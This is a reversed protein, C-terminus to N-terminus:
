YSGLMKPDLPVDDSWPRRPIEVHVAPTRRKHEWFHEGRFPDFSKNICTGAASRQGSHILLKFRQPIHQTGPRCSIKSADVGVLQYRGVHRVGVVHSREGCWGAALHDFRKLWYLGLENGRTHSLNDRTGSLM